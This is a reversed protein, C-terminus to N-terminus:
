QFDAPHRSGAEGEIEKHPFIEVTWWRLCGHCVLSPKRQAWFYLATDECGCEPCPGVGDIMVSRM